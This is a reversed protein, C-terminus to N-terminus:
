GMIALFPAASASNVVATAPLPHATNQTGQILVPAATGFLKPLEWYLLENGALIAASTGIAGCSIGAYYATGATLSTSIAVSQPGTANLKGATAGASVIKARTTGNYIGVDVNDNSGAATSVIFRIATVTMARSARFRVWYAVNASLTVAAMGGVFDPAVVGGYGRDYDLAGDATGRAVAEVFIATDTYAKTAKQSAVNADSNAALATDTSLVATPKTALATKTAKQTAVVTDSNAAMTADTDLTATPKTDLATQVSTALAELSGDSLGTAPVSFGVYKTGTADTAYYSTGATLGTFTVSGGSITQTNTATGIPTGTPTGKEAWRSAPYAGIDGSVFHYNTNLTFSAM